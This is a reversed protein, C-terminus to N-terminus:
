TRFPMFSTGVRSLKVLGALAVVAPLMMLDTLKAGGRASGRLLLM